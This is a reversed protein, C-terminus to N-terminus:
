EEKRIPLELSRDWRMGCSENIAIQFQNLQLMSCVFQRSRDILALRAISAHAIPM